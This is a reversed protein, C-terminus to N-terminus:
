CLLPEHQDRLSQHQQLLTRKTRRKTSCFSIKQEVEWRWTTLCQQHFRPEIFPRFVANVDLQNKEWDFEDDDLDSVQYASTDMDQAGVSPLVEDRMEHIGQQNPPVPIRALHNHLFDQKESLLLSWAAMFFEQVLDKVTLTVSDKGFDLSWQISGNSVSFIM